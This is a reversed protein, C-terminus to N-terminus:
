TGVDFTQQLKNHPDDVLELFLAESSPTQNHSVLNM